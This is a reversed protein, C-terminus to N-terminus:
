RPTQTKELMMLEALEVVATAGVDRGVTSGFKVPVQCDREWEGLM